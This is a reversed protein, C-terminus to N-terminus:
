FTQQDFHFLLFRPSASAPDVVIAGDQNQGANNRHIKHASEPRGQGSEGYVSVPKGITLEKAIAEVLDTLALPTFDANTVGLMSPYDLAIGTHWGEAFAPGVLAHPKIAYRVKPDQGARDSQVNVVLRYVKGAMWVQLILHDKNPFTCNVDTPRQVAYILGDIRGFGETLQDGFTDACKGTFSAGPGADAGADLGAGGESPAAADASPDPPDGPAPTGLTPSVQDTCAVAFLAGLGLVWSARLVLMVSAM